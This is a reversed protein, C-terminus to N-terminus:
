FPIEYMQAAAVATDVAQGQKSIYASHVNKYLTCSMRILHRQIIRMVLPILTIRHTICVSLTTSLSAKVAFANCASCISQARTSACPVAYANTLWM